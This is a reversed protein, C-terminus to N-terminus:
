ICKILVLVSLVVPVLCGPHWIAHEGATTEVRDGGWFGDKSTILWCGFYLAADNGSSALLWGTGWVDPYVVFLTGTMGGIETIILWGLHLNAHKGATIEM